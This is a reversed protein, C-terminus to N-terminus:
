QVVFLTRTSIGFVDVNINVKDMCSWYRGIVIVGIREQLFVRRTMYV